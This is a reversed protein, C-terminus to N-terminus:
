SKQVCLFKFILNFLFVLSLVFCFNFSLKCIIMSYFFMHVWHFYIWCLTYQPNVCKLQRTLLCLLFANDLHILSINLSFWINQPSLFGSFDWIDNAKIRGLCCLSTFTTKSSNKFSGGDLQFLFINPFCTQSHKMVRVLAGNRKTYLQGSKEKVMWHTNHIRKLWSKM